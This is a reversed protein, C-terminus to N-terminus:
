AGVMESGCCRAYMCDSKFTSQQEYQLGLATGKQKNEEGSDFRSPSILSCSRCAGNNYWIIGAPVRATCRVPIDHWDNLLTIRGFIIHHFTSAKAAKREERDRSRQKLGASARPNFTQIARRKKEQM